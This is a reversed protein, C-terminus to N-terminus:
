ANREHAQIRRSAAITICVFLLCIPRYAWPMPVLAAVQLVNSAGQAYAGCDLSRGCTGWIALVPLLPALPVTLVAGFVAFYVLMRVLRHGLRSGRGIAWSALHFWLAYAALAALLALWSVWRPWPLNQPHQPLAGLAGLSFCLGAAVTPSLNRIVTWPRKANDSLM